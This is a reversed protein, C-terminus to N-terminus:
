AETACSSLYHVHITIKNGNNGDYKGVMATPRSGSVRIVVWTWNSEMTVTKRKLMKRFYSFGGGFGRPEKADRRDTRMFFLLWLSM